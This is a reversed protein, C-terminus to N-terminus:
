MVVSDLMYDGLRYLLLRRVRPTPAKSSPMCYTNCCTRTRTLPQTTVFAHVGCGRVRWVEALSQSTDVGRFVAVSSVFSTSKMGGEDEFGSINSFSEGRLAEYRQEQLLLRRWCNLRRWWAGAATLAKSEWPVRFRPCHKEWEEQRAGDAAPAAELEVIASGALPMSLSVTAAAAIEGGSFRRRVWIGTRLFSRAPGQESSARGKARSAAM